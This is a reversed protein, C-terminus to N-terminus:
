NERKRLVFITSISSFLILAYVFINDGTKPNAKNVTRSGIAYNSFSKTKFTITNTEADYVTPIIEYEDGDHINHVIVIDNGNVGKALKITIVVEKELEDIKNSWVDDADDKGKYFINYLDIDLYNSVEYGDAAGEFNKIKDPSLEIDKITLEASGGDLNTGVDIKGSRVKDSETKVVDSTPKFTAAFHINTDPMTFEYQNAEVSTLQYGYEPVFEFVVRSGPEVKAWGLGKEDVGYEDSHEGLYESPDVLQVNEDYVAIIGSSGHELFM